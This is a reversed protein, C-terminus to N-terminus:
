RYLHDQLLKREMGHQTLFAAMPYTFARGLRARLLTASAAEYLEADQGLM